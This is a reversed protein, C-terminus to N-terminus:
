KFADSYQRSAILYIMSPPKDILDTQFSLFNNRYM